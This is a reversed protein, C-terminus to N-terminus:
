EFGQAIKWQERSLACLRMRWGLVGIRKVGMTRKPRFGAQHLARTVYDALPLDRAYIYRIRNKASFVRRLAHALLESQMDGKRYTSTVYFHRLIAVSSSGPFQACDDSGGAPRSADIAVFGIVKDNYELVWFSSWKSRAYHSTIDAVDPNELM